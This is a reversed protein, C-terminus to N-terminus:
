LLDKLQFHIDSYFDTFWMFTLDECINNGADSPIAHRLLLYLSLPKPQVRAPRPRMQRITTKKM